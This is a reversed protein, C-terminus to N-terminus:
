SHAESPDIRRHRDEKGGFQHPSPTVQDTPNM